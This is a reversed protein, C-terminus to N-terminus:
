RRRPRRADIGHVPAAWLSSAGGSFLVLVLDNATASAALALTREAAAVSAADPTPHRAHVLGITHAGTAARTAPAM